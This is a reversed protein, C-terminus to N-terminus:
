FEDKTGCTNQLRIVNSLLKADIPIKLNPKKEQIGLRSQRNHVPSLRYSSLCVYTKPPRCPPQVALASSSICIAGGGHSRTRGALRGVLLASMLLQAAPAATQDGELNLSRHYGINLVVFDVM